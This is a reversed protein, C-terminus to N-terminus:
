LSGLNVRGGLDFQPLTAVRVIQTADRAMLPSYYVNGDGSADTDVAHFITGLPQPFEETWMAVHHRGKGWAEEGRQPLPEDWRFLLWDGPLCEEFPKPRTQADMYHRLVPAVGALAFAM